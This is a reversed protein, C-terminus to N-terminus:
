GRQDFLIGNVEQMKPLLQEAQEAPFRRIINNTKTEIVSVYFDESRNDFGFRLSTNFPSLSRNLEDILQEMQEQSKTEQTMQETEKAAVQDQQIQAKQMTEVNRVQSPQTMQAQQTQQMKAATQFIEM